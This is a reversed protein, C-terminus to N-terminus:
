GPAHDAVVVEVTGSGLLRRSTPLPRPTAIVRIRRLSRLYSEQKDLCDRTPTWFSMKENLDWCHVTASDRTISTAGRGSGDGVRNLKVGPRSGMGWIKLGACSGRMNASDIQHV